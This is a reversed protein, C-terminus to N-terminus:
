QESIAQRRLDGLLRCIQPQSVGIIKALEKQTIDGGTAIIIDLIKKKKGSCKIGKARQVCENYIVDNDVNVRTDPLIEALSTENGNNDHYAYSLSLTEVDGGRKAKRLARLALLIENQILIGAYTSFTREKDWKRVAKLLGIMGIQIRDDLEISCGDFRQAVKIVLGYNLNLMEEESLNEMNKFSKVMVGM